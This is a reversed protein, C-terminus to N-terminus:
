VNTTGKELCTGSVGVFVLGGSIKELDVGEIETSELSEIQAGSQDDSVGAPNNKDISM